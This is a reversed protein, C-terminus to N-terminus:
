DDSFSPGLLFLSVDLAYAVADTGLSELFMLLGADQCTRIAQVAAEEERQAAAEAKLEAASMVARTTSVDKRKTGQGHDSM